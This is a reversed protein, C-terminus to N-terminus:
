FDHAKLGLCNKRLSERNNVVTGHIRLSNNSLKKKPKDRARAFDLHIERQITKTSVCNSDKGRKDFTLCITLFTFM